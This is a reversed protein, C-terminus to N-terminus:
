FTPKLKENWKQYTKWIYKFVICYYKVWRSFIAMTIELFLSHLINKSTLFYVHWELGLSKILIYMNM